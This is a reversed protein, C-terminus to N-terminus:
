SYSFEDTFHLVSVISVPIPPRSMSNVSLGSLAQKTWRIFEVSPAAFDDASNNPKSLKAAGSPATPTSVAPKAIIVSASKAPITPRLPTTAVVSTTKGSSGVQTWGVGTPPKCTKEHALREVKWVSECVSTNAALDAYGRKSGGPVGAATQTERAQVAVSLKRKEEEVQIQKLTKKPGAEGGGWVPLVPSPVVALSAVASSRQGQPPLGWTLNHPLEDVSPSQAPSGSAARAEAMAQKRAEVQRAEVDQIERLSPGAPSNRLEQEDKAVAWPAVKASVSIKEPTQPGIPKGNESVSSKRLTMPKPPLSAPAPPLKTIPAISSSTPPLPLQASAPANLSMKRSTPAIPPKSTPSSKPWWASQVIPATKTLLLPEPTRSPPTLDHLPTEIRPESVSSGLEEEGNDAAEETEPLPVSEVIAGQRPSLAEIPGRWQEQHFSDLATPLERSHLRDPQWAPLHSQEQLRPLPLPQQVSQSQLPIGWPSQPMTGLVLSNESDRYTPGGSVPSYLPLAQQHSFPASGIPSPM